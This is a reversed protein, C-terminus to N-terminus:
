RGLQAHLRALEHLMPSGPAPRSVTNAPLAERCATCVAGDPPLRNDPLLEAGCVARLKVLDPDLFVARIVFDFVAHALRDKGPIVSYTVPQDTSM